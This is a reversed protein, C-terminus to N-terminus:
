RTGGRAEMNVKLRCERCRRNERGDKRIFFYTNGATRAHGYKCADKMRVASMKAVLEPPLKRGAMRKRMAEVFEPTRKIGKIKEMLKAKNEQTMKRGLSRKNGKLASSMKARTEVSPYRGIMGEGGDTMNYGHGFEIRTGMSKIFFTELRPLLNDRACCLQSIEFNEHGYKRIAAHLIMTNARREAHGRHASWRKTLTLVTKGIYRKGNILNTVVYVSGYRIPVQQITYNSSM